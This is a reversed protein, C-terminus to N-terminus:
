ASNKKEDTKSEPRLKLIDLIKSLDTIKNSILVTANNRYKRSLEPIEKELYEAATVLGGGGEFPINHSAGAGLLLHVIALAKDFETRGKDCATAICKCIAYGLAPNSQPSTGDDLLVGANFDVNPDVRFERLLLQVADASSVM